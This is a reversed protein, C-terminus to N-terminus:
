AMANTKLVEAANLKNSTVSICYPNMNIIDAETDLVWLNLPIDQTIITEYDSATLNSAQCSLSVNACPYTNRIEEVAQLKDATLASCVVEVNAGQHISLVHM